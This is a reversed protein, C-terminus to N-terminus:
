RIKTMLWMLQAITVNNRQIQREARWVRGLLHIVIGILGLNGVYIPTFWTLIFALTAAALGVWICMTWTIEEATIKRTEEPEDPM